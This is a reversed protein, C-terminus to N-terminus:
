WRVPHARACSTMDRLVLWTARTYSHPMDCVLVLWTARTYSHPMDCVLVLWTARSMMDWLSHAHPATAPLIQRHASWLYFLDHRVLLHTMDCVHILWTVWMCSDHWVYSHSMDCVHVLWTTRTFSDHWVHSHAMDCLTHEHSAPREQVRVGQIVHSMWIHSMVGEYTHCRWINCYRVILLQSIFHTTACIFSDHWARLRTMDCMHVLCIARSNMIFCMHVLWTACIFSDHRVYSRTMDCMHNLWTM